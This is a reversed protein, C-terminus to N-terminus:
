LNPANVVGVLEGLREMRALDCAPAIHNTLRECEDQAEKLLSLLADDKAAAAYAAAYATANAAANAANAAANTAATAYAAANTAANTAAANTATEKTPNDCYV